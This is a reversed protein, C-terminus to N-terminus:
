EAPGKVDQGVDLLAVEIPERRSVRQDIDGCDRVAACDQVFEVGRGHGDKVAGGTALDSGIVVMGDGIVGAVAAGVARVADDDEVVAGLIQGDVDSGDLVPGGVGEQGAFSANIQGGDFGAGVAV